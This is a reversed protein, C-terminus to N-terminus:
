GHGDNFVSKWSFGDRAFDEGGLISGDFELHPYNPKLGSDIVAVVQGQGQIGHAHLTAVGLLGANVSYSDPYAAALGAIKSPSDIPTLSDPVIARDGRRRSASLSRDFRTSTYQEPAAIPPDK